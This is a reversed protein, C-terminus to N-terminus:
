HRVADVGASIMSVLQHWSRWGCSVLGFRSLLYTPALDGTTEARLGERPVCAAQRRSGNLSRTLTSYAKKRQLM